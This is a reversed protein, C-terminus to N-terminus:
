VTVEFVDETERSFVFLLEEAGAGPLPFPNFARLIRFNDDLYTIRWRRIQSGPAFQKPPLAIGAISNGVRLFEIDWTDPAHVTQTATLAGLIELPFGPIPTIRLINKIQGQNSDLSQFVDGTFPGLRGNSPNPATAPLDTYLLRWFGNM